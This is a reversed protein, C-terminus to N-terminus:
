PQQLHYVRVHEVGDDDFWVGAVMEESLSTPWFGKPTEVQGVWRRTEDFVDWM